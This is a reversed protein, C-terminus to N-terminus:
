LYAKAFQSFPVPTKGELQVTKILLRSNNASLELIKLRKESGDKVKIMTWLGPWPHLARFSLEIFTSSDEPPSMSVNFFYQFFPPYEAPKANEGKVAKGIILWPLFGDDRKLRRAYIAHAKDQPTGAISGNLYGEIVEGLLEVGLTFLKGRLPDTTDKETVPIKKQAMIRGEDFKEELTVITAGTQHDGSLITWPVPDAGRWRPLLSPHVNLGRYKADNITKIPIKQGYSASVLLDAKITELANVVEDENQYLNPKDPDTPFSLVTIRNEKAWLETPTPTVVKDRGVQRPPQTVVAAIAFQYNPTSLQHLKQLVILSDSTSGFFLVNITQM